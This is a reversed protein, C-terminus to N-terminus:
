VLYCKWNKQPIKQMLSSLMKLEEPTDKADSFIVNNDVCNYDECMELILLM